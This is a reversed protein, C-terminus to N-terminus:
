APSAEDDELAYEVAQDFDMARGEVVAREFTAEGLRSRVNAKIREYFSRNPEYYDYVPAEVARLLGEAVGFLRASRLAEGQVGAVVALGEVFYGMNSQDRIEESVTVGEKLRRATLEHDGNAQAVQALNYLGNSIGLRDGLERSLALGEEMAATARDLDGQILSLTGLHSSVTSADQANGVQLFLSLAEELRSRATGLDQRRLALLGLVYQAHATRVPDGVERALELSEQLYKEGSDYDGQTYAIQGAVALVITRLSASLNRDLLIEMWQRGEQKHGRLWWFMWLAWGLRVAMENHGTSLAWSMTARLNGYEQDILNLCEVQKPGRLKPYAREALALFFTAYTHSVVGSDASNELRERAYKRVPELMWYRVGGESVVLSQEVLSGVLELVDDSNAEGAAGVVEAAELTFGEAFVSLRRFLAKEPESLLAHSWDLTARLTRQRKPLDRAGGASLVRDLRALLLSPSLFRVRAAALELALPLGALQCCITAVHAANGEGLRFATSAARAREVFLRGAPSGAVEAASSRTSRPLKLPPVLYEQEGRVRLTARSTVMVFLQPSSEILDVVELAAGLLHEFNDLVLLLRKERLYTHLVERPSRGEERLRLSRAVKPIVLTRDDSSALAVFVVGHPFLSASERAAQIALRTKGVGGTGTLTLLRTEQCGLLSKLRTLEDERGILPTAPSPLSSSPSVAPATVVGRRRAAGVLLFHEEDLLGLARALLDVTDPRPRHGEGRELGRITRVSLGSRESLEEQTLWAARRHRKLLSGFAAADTDEARGAVSPGSTGESGKRRGRLPGKGEGRGMKGTM